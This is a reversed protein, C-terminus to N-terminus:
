PCTGQPMSAEVMRSTGAGTDFNGSWYFKGGSEIVVSDGLYPAGFYMPSNAPIFPAGFDWWPGEYSNSIAVGILQKVTSTFPAITRLDVATYFYYFIGCHDQFVYSDAIQTTGDGFKWDGSIAQPIGMTDYTLTNGAATSTAPNAPTTLIITWLGQQTANTSVYVYNTGNLGGVNFVSVLSQRSYLAPLGVSAVPTQTSCMGGGAPCGLPTYLGNVADSCAMYINPTVSSTLGSYLVCFNHAAGNAYGGFPLFMPKLQFHSAGSGTGASGPPTLSAGYALLNPAYTTDETWGTVGDPSHWLCFAMWTANGSTASDCNSFAWFLGGSQFQESVYPPSLGGARWAEDNESLIPNNPSPVMDAPNRFRVHAPLPKTLVASAFASTTALPGAPSTGGNSAPKVDAFSILPGVKGDFAFSGTLEMTTASTATRQTTDYQNIGIGIQPSSTSAFTGTPVPISVSHWENDAPIQVRLFTTGVSIMLYQPSGGTPIKGSVGLTVGKTNITGNTPTQTLVSCQTTGASIAPFVVESVTGATGDPLTDTFPTVTPAAVTCNSATWFGDAPVFDNSGLLLNQASVKGTTVPLFGTSGGSAMEVMTLTAFIFIGVSASCCCTFAGLARLIEGHTYGHSVHQNRL